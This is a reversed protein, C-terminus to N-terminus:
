KISQCGINKANMLDDIVDFYDGFVKIYVQYVANRIKEIQEYEIHLMIKKIKKDKSKMESLIKRVSYEGASVAQDIDGLHRELDIDGSASYINREAAQSEVFQRYDGTYEKM